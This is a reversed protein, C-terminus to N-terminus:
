SLTPAFTVPAAASASLGRRRQAVRLAHGLWAPCPEVRVHAVALVAVSAVLATATGLLLGALVDSPWHVGLVLRSTAVSAAALGAGGILVGRTLWGRAVLVALLIAATLFFAATDTSHGSPFSPATEAVLRFAEDPRARGVTVKLVEAAVGAVGLALLPGVAVILPRRTWWLLAAFAAGFLLLAPVSGVASLVKALRELAASRHDIVLQLRSPDTTSLGNHRVVDESVGAFGVVAVATSLAAALVWLWGRVTLAFRSQLASM